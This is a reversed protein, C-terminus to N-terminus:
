LLTKNSTQWEGSKIVALVNWLTWAQEEGKGKWSFKKKWLNNVYDIAIPVIHGILDVNGDELVRAFHNEDYMGNVAEVISKAVGLNKRFEKQFLEKDVFPRTEEAKVSMYYATISAPRNKKNGISADVAEWFDWPAEAAPPSSHPPGSSEGEPVPQEEKENESSIDLKNTLLAQKHVSPAFETSSEAAPQPHGDSFTGIKSRTYTVGRKLPPTRGLNPSPTDGILYIERRTRYKTEGLVNKYAEKKMKVEILGNKKLEGLYREFHKTKKGMCM